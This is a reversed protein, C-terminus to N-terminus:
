KDEGPAARVVVPLRPQDPACLALLVMATSVPRDLPLDTIKM